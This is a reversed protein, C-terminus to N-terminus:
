KLYYHGLGRMQVEIVRVLRIWLFSSNVPGSSVRISPFYKTKHRLVQIFAHLYIATSHHNIVVAVCDPAAYWRLFQFINHTLPVYLLLFLENFNM